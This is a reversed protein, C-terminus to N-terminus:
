KKLYKKARMSLKSQWFKRIINIEESKRSWTGIYYFYSLSDLYNFKVSVVMNNIVKERAENPLSNLVLRTLVM